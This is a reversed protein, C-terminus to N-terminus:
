AAKRSRRSAGIGALGLGLLAITAPEPVTESSFSRGSQSYTWTAFTRDYGTVEFYGTGNLVLNTLDSPDSAIVTELVFSYTTDGVTFDWLPAVPVDAFYFDHMNVTVGGLGAFDETPAAFPNVMGGGFDIGTAGTGDYLVTSAGGINITGNIPVASAAGATISLSIAVTLRALKNTM